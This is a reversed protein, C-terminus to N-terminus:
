LLYVQRCELASQIRALENNCVVTLSIDMLHAVHPKSKGKLMKKRSRCLGDSISLEKPRGM